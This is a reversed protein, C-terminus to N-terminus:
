VWGVARQSVPWRPGRQAEASAGPSTRRDTVQRLVSADDRITPRAVTASKAAPGTPTVLKCGGSPFAGPTLESPAPGGHSSHPGEERAASRDGQGPRYRLRRGPRDPPM